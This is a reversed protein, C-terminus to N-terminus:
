DAAALLCCYGETCALRVETPSVGGTASATVSSKTVTIGTGYLAGQMTVIDM